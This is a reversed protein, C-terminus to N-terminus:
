SWRELRERERHSNGPREDLLALQEAPTRAERRARRDDANAARRVRDPPYGKIGTSKSM